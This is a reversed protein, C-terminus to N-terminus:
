ITAAFIFSPRIAFIPRHDGRHACTKGSKGKHWREAFVVANQPCMALLFGFPSLQTSSNERQAPDANEQWGSAWNKATNRGQTTLPFTASAVVTASTTALKGTPCGDRDVPSYVESAICHHLDAQLVRGGSHLDVYIMAPDLQDSGVNGILLDVGNDIGCIGRQGTAASDVSRDMATTTWHDHPFGVFLIGSATRCATGNNTSTTIELGLENKVGNAWTPLISRGAFRFQQFRRISSTKFQSDLVFAARNGKWRDTCSNISKRNLLRSRKRNLSRNVKEAFLRFRKSEHSETQKGIGIQIGIRLRQDGYVGNGVLRLEMINLLCFKGRFVSTHTMNQTDTSNM